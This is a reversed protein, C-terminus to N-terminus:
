HFGIGRLLLHTLRGPLAYCTDFIRALKDRRMILYNQQRLSGFLFHKLQLSVADSTAVQYM